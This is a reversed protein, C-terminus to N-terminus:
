TESSEYHSATKARCQVGCCKKYKLGNDEEGRRTHTAQKDLWQWIKRAIEAPNGYTTDLLWLYECHSPLHGRSAQGRPRPAPDDVFSLRYVRTNPRRMM